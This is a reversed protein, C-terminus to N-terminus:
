KSVIILAAEATIGMAQLFSHLLVEEGGPLKIGPVVLFGTETVLEAMGQQFRLMKQGQEEQILQRANDISFKGNEKSSIGVTM